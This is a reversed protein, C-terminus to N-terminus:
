FNVTKHNNQEDHKIEYKGIRKKFQKATMVQDDNYMDRLIGADFAVKRATEIHDGSVM